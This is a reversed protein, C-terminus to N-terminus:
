TMHIFEYRQTFQSHFHSSTFHIAILFGFKNSGRIWIDLLYDMGDYM